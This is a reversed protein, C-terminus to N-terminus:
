EGEHKRPDVVGMINYGSDVYLIEGTVHSAMDSCLYVAANGCDEATVNERMPAVDAFNKYMDRFGGVGMAALTRIPGASIANVRIGQPGFDAAMYRTSAELAAKAVGMMNYNPAVKVSGYYTLTLLASGKRMIPQFARALGVFSYVSIDMALHFGARSTDYFYGSLEEKNAFGISHVLIDIQGFKDAAKKAVAAIQEDSAVDCQEVFDVGLQAALPRVRKELMEGAYSFGLTAGQEHFARAIGWAISKDNALGFILANKGTLLGM